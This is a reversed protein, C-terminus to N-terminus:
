KIQHSTEIWNALWDCQGQLPFTLHRIGGSHPCIDGYEQLDQPDPVVKPKVHSTTRKSKKCESTKKLAFNQVHGPVSFNSYNWWKKM